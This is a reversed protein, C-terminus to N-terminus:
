GGGGGMMAAQGAGQMGALLFRQYFPVNELSKGYLGYLNSSRNSLANILGLNKDQQMGLFPLVDGRVSANKAAYGAQLGGAAEQERQRSGQSKLAESLSANPTGGWSAATPMPTDDSLDNSKARNYLNLYPSMGSVKTIDFDPSNTQSMWDTKEKETATELATPPKSLQQQLLQNTQQQQGALDAEYKAKKQKGFM